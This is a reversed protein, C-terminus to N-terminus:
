ILGFEQMVEEQTYFRGEKIQKESEQLEKSLKIYAFDKEDIPNIELVPKNKKLIIYRVQKKNAQQTYKSMNQRFDKMGVFKTTM